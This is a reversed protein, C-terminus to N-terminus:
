PADGLIMGSQRVTELHSELSAKVADAIEM